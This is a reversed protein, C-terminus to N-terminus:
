WITQCIGEKRLREDRTVLPWSRALATATILRDAPDKPVSDPFQAAISAIEPTLECIGVGTADLMEDIASSVTGPARVRGRAVLWAVEFLSISAISLGGTRAAQRITRAAPKSLKKPDIALWLLAHTDLLIM